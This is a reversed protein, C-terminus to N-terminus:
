RHATRPFPRIFQGLVSGNPSRRMLTSGPVLAFSSLQRRTRSRYRRSNYGTTLFRLELAGTGAGATVRAELATLEKRLTQYRDIADRGIRQDVRTTM